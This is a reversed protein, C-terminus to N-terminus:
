ADAWATYVWSVLALLVVLGAATMGGVGADAASWDISGLRSAAREAVPLAQGTVWGAVATGCALALRRV